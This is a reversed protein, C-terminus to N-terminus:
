GAKHALNEKQGDHDFILKYTVGSDDWVQRVSWMEPQAEGNQVKLDVELRDMNVQDVTASYSKGDLKLTKNEGSLDIQITGAGQGRDWVGSVDTLLKSKNDICGLTFLGLVASMMVMTWLTSHFLKQKM